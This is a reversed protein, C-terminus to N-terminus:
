EGFTGSWQESQYTALEEDRMQEYEDVLIQHSTCMDEYEGNLDDEGCPCCEGFECIHEDM